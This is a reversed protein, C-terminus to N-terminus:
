TTLAPGILKMGHELHIKEVEEKTPPAKFGNMVRFFDEMNGAPQVQYIMKGQDTLQVWTHAVNRPLFVTDGATVEMTNGGVVFRYRGEVVYFIEDQALHLHMSPGTKALGTYEFMALAGDTDAGSIKCDNPHIGKFMIKEETRAKGAKVLFPNKESVQLSWPNAMVAVPTLALSTFLFKRRQM